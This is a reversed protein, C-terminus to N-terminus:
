LKVAVIAADGASVLTILPKNLWLLFQNFWHHERERMVHKAAEADNYIRARTKGM